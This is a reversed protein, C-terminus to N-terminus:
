DDSVCPDRRASSGSSTEESMAAEGSRRRARRQRLVEYLVVSGAVSVNLSTAAGVMPIRVMEDCSERYAHSLGHTENGLVLVTPGALDSEPLDIPAGEDTGVIRCAGVRSRVSTVWHVTDEHSPVRVVPVAFLSGRSATVTAPEYLDAGHGSLIIGNVGFADCSRILTGLNGPNGPRDVVVVLLDAGVRIRELSDDPMRVIALLESPEDKRSLARFLDPAIEYRAATPAHSLVDNAWRSRTAGTEYVLGGFQWRNTLAMNIPQVGEVLFTRTRNRKQRNTALSELIQYASNRKSILLTRPAM